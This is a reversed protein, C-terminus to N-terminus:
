EIWDRSTGDTRCGSILIPRDDLNPRRRDLVAKSM